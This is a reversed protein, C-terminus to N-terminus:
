AAALGECYILRRFSAIAAQAANEWDIGCLNGDRHSSVGKAFEGELQGFGNLARVHPM